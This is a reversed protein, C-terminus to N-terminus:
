DIRYVVEVSICCTSESAALKSARFLASRDLWHRPRSTVAAPRPRVVGSAQFKFRHRDSEARECFLCCECRLESVKM